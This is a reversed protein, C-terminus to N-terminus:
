RSGRLGWRTRLHRYMFFIRLPLGDFMLRTFIGMLGPKHEITLRDLLEAGGEVDTFIHHHEWYAMPGSLMQDVFSCATPGPKHQVRWLLPLPGLWMRFEVTGDTLSKLGYELVQIFIPPPTLKNFAKPQAHFDWLQQATGPFFSRFEVTKRGM